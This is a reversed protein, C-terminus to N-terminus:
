IGTPAPLLSEATKDTGYHGGRGELALVLATQGPVTEVPDVTSVGNKKYLGIVSELTEADGTGVTPFRAAVFDRVLPVDTSDPAEPDVAGLVVAGSFPGGISGRVQIVKLRALEGILAPNSGTTVQNVVEALVREKLAQPEPPIGFMQSLSSKVGPDNYASQGTILVTMPVSGGAISIAESIRGLAAENPVQRAIVAFVKGQLRHALTYPKSQEAYTKYLDLESNLSQNKEKIEDFTKKLSRIESKQEAILGREVLTTGLLIGIGLALFVAVLSIVHYRMDIM